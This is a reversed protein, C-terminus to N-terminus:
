LRRLFEDIRLSPSRWRAVPESPKDPDPVDEAVVVVRPAGVEAPPLWAPDLPGEKPLVILSPVGFPRFAPVQTDVIVFRAPRAWRDANSIAPHDRDGAPVYIARIGATVCRRVLDDLHHQLNFDVPYWVVVSGRGHFEKTLSSQISLGLHPMPPDPVVPVPPGGDAPGHHADSPCGSCTPTLHQTAQSGDSLVLQFTYESSFIDGWCTRAVLLEGVKGESRRQDTLVHNRLRGLVTDFTEQDLNEV